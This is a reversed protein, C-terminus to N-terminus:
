YASKIMGDPMPMPMPMKENPVITAQQWWGHALQLLCGKLM